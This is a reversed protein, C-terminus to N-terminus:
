HSNGLYFLSPSFSGFPKQPLPPPPTHLWELKLVQTGCTFVIVQFIDWLISHLWNDNLLFSICRIIHLQNFIVAKFLCLSTTCRAIKPFMSVNKIPPHNFFTSLKDTKSKDTRNILCKNYYRFVPGYSFFCHQPCLFPWIKKVDGSKTNNKKIQWRFSPSIFYAHTTKANVM